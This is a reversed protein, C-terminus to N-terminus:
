VAMVVGAAMLVVISAVEFVKVGAYDLTAALNLVLYAKWAEDAAHAM